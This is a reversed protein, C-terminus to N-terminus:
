CIFYPPTESRELPTSKTQLYVVDTIRKGIIDHLFKNLLPILIEKNEGFVRKFGYDTLLNLYCETKKPQEM